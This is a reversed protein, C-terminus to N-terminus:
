DATGGWRWQSPASPGIDGLRRSRGEEGAMGSVFEASFQTIVSDAVGLSRLGDATLALHMARLQRQQRLQKVTTISDVISALWTRGAAAETVRLLVFAAEKLPGYGSWLLGQIDDFETDPAPM